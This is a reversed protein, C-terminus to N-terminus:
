MGYREISVNSDNVTVLLTMASDSETLSLYHHDSRWGAALMFM